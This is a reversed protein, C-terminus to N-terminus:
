QDGRRNLWGDRRAVAERGDVHQGAVAPRNPERWHGRQDDEKATVPSVVTMVLEDPQSARHVAKTGRTDGDERDARVSDVGATSRTRHQAP